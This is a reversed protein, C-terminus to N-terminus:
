NSWVCAAVAKLGSTRTIAIARFTFASKTRLRSSPKVKKSKTYRATSPSRPCLFNSYCRSWINQSMKDSARDPSGGSQGVRGVLWSLQARQSIRDIAFGRLYSRLPVSGSLSSDSGKGSHNQTGCVNKDTRRRIQFLRECRSQEDM